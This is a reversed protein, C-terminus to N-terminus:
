RGINNLAARAKKAGSPGTDSVVLRGESLVLFRDALDLFSRDATAIFLSRDGREAAVWDKFRQRQMDSLGQTPEAFLCIASPRAIARALAVAKKVRDPMRALAQENFRTKLGDPLVSTDDILDMIELAAHMDAESASPAALRFNQEATGYFLVPKQTSYTISRRLEDSPIQRIDVGDHEITGATQTTLGDILDLVAGRSAVDGGLIAVVEGPICDFSVQSLLAANKPDPRYTVASFSVGGNLRRHHSQGIGLRSEEPLKLLRDALTRSKRFALIQPINTHLAHIPSLVKAVLAIVAILVGFSTQGMMASHASIVIAGVTALATISQTIALMTNQFLRARRHAQEATAVLPETRAMWQNQLGLNFLTKQHAIADHLATRSEASATGAEQDLRQQVPISAVSIIVFVIAVLMTLVGVLPSLYLIVAFFILAFPLDLLTSMVQGTFVERLAEFQRFRMLQQDVGSKTLQSLPLAMLKRFLALSLDREGERGIHALALTRAHRFGFDSILIVGMGIALATLFEVSGTPIVRDYIAMILLPALLGLVNSFLSTLVLWPVMPRLAGFAEAVSTTEAAAAMHRFRDIRVLTCTSRTSPRISPKAGDGNSVLMSAGDIDLVIYCPRDKPFVLAPCEEPTIVDERCEIVTHPVKLNELAHIIDDPSLQDSMHPFAEVIADKRGQWGGIQLLKELFTSAQHTDIATM